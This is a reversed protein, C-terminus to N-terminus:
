QATMQLLTTAWEHGHMDFANVDIYYTGAAFTVSCSEPVSASACGFDFILDGNGDYFLLDLDAEDEISFDPRNWDLVFDVTTEVAFVVQFVDDLDATGLSIYQEFPLLAVTSESPNSLTLGGGGGGNNPENDDMPDPDTVTFTEAFALQDPGVNLVLLEATSMGAPTVVVIDTTSSSIPFPSVGDFEVRTDTDFAPGPSATITVTDGWAGSTPAFSGQFPAPVVTFPTATARAAGWSGLLSAVLNTTGPSKGSVLGAADVSGIASAAVSLEVESIDFGSVPNGAEDLYTVSAQATQGSQITTPALTVVISDPVVHVTAQATLSGPGDIDVCSAGLTQGVIIAREPPQVEVREPDPTVTIKTDCATFSVPDFTPEGSENVANATIRTTDAADVVAFTPNVALRAATDRGDSVPNDDCGAAAWSAVAVLVATRVWAANM